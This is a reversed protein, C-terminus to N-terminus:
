LCGAELLYHKPGADAFAVNGPHFIFWHRTRLASRPSGFSSSLFSSSPESAARLERPITVHSGRNIANYRSEGNSELRFKTDPRNCFVILRCQRLQVTAPIRAVRSLGRARFTRDAARARSSAASQGAASSRRWPANGGQCRAGQFKKQVGSIEAPNACASGTLFSTSLAPSEFTHAVGLGENKPFVTVKWAM